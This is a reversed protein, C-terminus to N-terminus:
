LFTFSLLKLKIIAIRICRVHIKLDSSGQVVCYFTGCSNMSHGCKLIRDVYLKTLIPGRLIILLLAPFFQETAKM